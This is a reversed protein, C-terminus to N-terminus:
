VDEKARHPAPPPSSARLSRKNQYAQAVVAFVGLGWDMMMANVAFVVIRVNDKTYGKSPDIRDFSPAFPDCKSGTKKQEFFVIGTIACRYKQKKAEALAWEMDLDFPMSKLKGRSKARGIGRYLAREIMRLYEGMKSPRPLRPRAPLAKAMAENYAAVFEPSGPVSPLAFRHEGIRRFYYRQIGHRDVFSQVYRIRASPQSEDSCGRAVSHSM